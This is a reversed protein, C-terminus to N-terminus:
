RARGGGARWRGAATSVAEAETRPGRPDRERRDHPDADDRSEHRAYQGVPEVEHEQRAEDRRDPEVDDGGGPSSSSPTMGVAAAAAPATSIGTAATRPLRIGSAAAVAIAATRTASARMCISVAPM